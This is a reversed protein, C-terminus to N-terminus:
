FHASMVAREMETLDWAALVAFLPGILHKLLFPDVPAEEWSAEWLIHYLHLQTKGPRINPPVMPVLARWRKQSLLQNPESWPRVSQELYTAGKGNLGVGKFNLVEKGYGAWFDVIKWHARGLALKPRGLSDLGAAHFAKQIDIVAKGRALAQYGLMAAQDAKNDPNERVSKRYARYAEIAKEKPMTITAVDM